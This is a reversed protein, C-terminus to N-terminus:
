YTAKGKEPRFGAVSAFGSARRVRLGPDDLFGCGLLRM